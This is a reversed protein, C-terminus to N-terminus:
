FRKSDKLEDYIENDRNNKIPSIVKLNNDYNNFFEDIDVNNKPIKYLEINSRKDKSIEIVKSMREELSKPIAKFQIKSNSYDEVNDNVWEPEDDDDDNEKNKGKNINLPKSIENKFINTPAKTIYFSIDNDDGYTSSPNYEKKYKPRLKFRNKPYSILLKKKCDYYCDIKNFAKNYLILDPIISKDNIIDRHLQGTRDYLKKWPEVFFFKDLSKQIFLDLLETKRFRHEQEM